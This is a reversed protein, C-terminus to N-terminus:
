FLFTLFFLLFILLFKKYQLNGLAIRMRWGGSYEKSRKTTVEEDPFGLGSLIARARPEAKYAEIEKLREYIDRLEFPKEKPLDEEENGDDDDEEKGENNKKKEEKEQEKKDELEQEKLLLKEAELLWERERDAKLVCTM